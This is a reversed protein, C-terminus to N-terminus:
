INNIIAQVGNSSSKNDYGTKRSTESHLCGCSQIKGSTVDKGRAVVKNGCDCEFEFAARKKNDKGELYYGITKILTLRGYKQKGFKVTSIYNPDTVLKNM